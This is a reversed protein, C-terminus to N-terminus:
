TAPRDHAIEELIQHRVTLISLFEQIFKEWGTGASNPRTLAQIAYPATQPHLRYALTLLNQRMQWAAPSSEHALLDRHLHEFVLRSFELSWPPEHDLLLAIAEDTKRAHFLDRVLAQRLEPPLGLQIANRQPYRRYLVQAWGVERNRCAATIWSELLLDKWENAEALDLLEGPNKGWAQCWWGAPILQLMQRLWFAKEGEHLHKPPVAAIGDRVMEPTCSEPLDIELRAKRLPWHGPKLRVLPQIRSIMRQVLRSNPLRALLDAAVRRVGQARDDLAQELFSEDELSLNVEMTQLLAVRTGADEQSWVDSLMRRAQAPGAQRQQHLLRQRIRLQGNQWSNEPDPLCAYEWAPNQAALWRGREGLVPLLAEGLEPQRAGEDLLHPLLTEKLRLGAQAMAQLVEIWLPLRPTELLRTLMQNLAPSGCPQRDPPCTTVPQATIHRPLTGAQRYLALAAARRWLRAETNGNGPPNGPQTSSGAPAANELLNELGPPLGPEAPSQRGTGLLAAALLAQWADELAVTPAPAEPM